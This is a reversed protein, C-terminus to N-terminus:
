LRYINTYITNFYIYITPNVDIVSDLDYDVILYSADLLFLPICYDLLSM